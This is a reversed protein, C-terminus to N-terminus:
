TAATARRYRRVLLMAPVLLIVLWILLTPGSEAFFLVFGLLTELANKYGTVLSNHIRTSASPSSNNLQAKYEESIRLEITAFDVRHELSKQEAEMEEIEGRVRAIEQEVALVDAIKGTRQLLIAQLRHETERSNKLRAVLDAHQQTVEEGSQSETEVHGLTKLEAFAGALENAPIRLSASISRPSNEATGASLQAAYGHHRALIAELSSRSSAFNKTVITLSVSRAIMPQHIPTPAPSVPKEEESSEDSTSFAYADSHASVAQKNLTIDLPSVDLGGPPKGALPENYAGRVAATDSPASKPVASQRSSGIAVYREFVSDRPSRGSRSLLLAVFIVGCLALIPRLGLLSHFQRILISAFGQTRRSLKEAAGQIRAEVTPPLSEVQWSALQRKTEGLQAALISCKACQKLHDSVSQAQTTSLEGDLFAIVEEPAIPHTAANM